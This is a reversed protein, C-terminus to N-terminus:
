EICEVRKKSEAEHLAYAVLKRMLKGLPIGSAEWAKPFLSIETFGPLTNIENLYLNGNEKDLFFDVRALGVSGSMKYAKVALRRIRMMLADDIKAPLYVSAGSASFYKTQYDYFPVSDDTSIEGAVSAQPKENGMVAVEIERAHIYEEILVTRDYKAVEKLAQVLDEMSDARMTGVSSGGNSPKLFCPFGIVGGIDEAVGEANKLIDQRAASMYKCQPIRAKAFLRKAYLKDMLIASSLVGSGAYPFGSLELLGQLAGDECNIGHVAPFICDPVQNGAAAIIFERISVPRTDTIPTFTLRDAWKMDRIDEDTGEFLGWQGERTIGVRIVEYGNQRLGNIINFASRCSILHETSVGGFLVLIKKAM